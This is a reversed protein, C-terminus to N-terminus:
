RPNLYDAASIEHVRRGGCDTVYVNNSIDSMRIACLSQLIPLLQGNVPNPAGNPNVAKASKPYGELTKNRWNNWYYVENTVSSVALITEINEGEENPTSILDFDEISYLGIALENYNSEGEGSVTLLRDFREQGIVDDADCDGVNFTAPNCPSTEEAIPNENFIMIRAHLANQGGIPNLQSFRENSSVLMKGDETFFIRNPSRFYRKLLGDFDPHLTNKLGDQILINPNATLLDEFTTRTYFDPQGLVKTFRCLPSTWTESTCNFVDRNFYQRIKIVRNNGTDAVYLNGDKANVDTPENLSSNGLTELPYSPTTDMLGAKGIVWNPTCVRPTIIGTGNDTICGNTPLNNYVVIRNNGSDSIFLRNAIVSVKRPKTLCENQPLPNNECEEGADCIGDRNGGTAFINEYPGGCPYTTGPAAQGLVNMAVMPAGIYQLLCASKEVEDTFDECAMAGNRAYIVVRNNDTDAVYMTNGSYALAIGGKNDGPVVAGPNLSQLYNVNGNLPDLGLSWRKNEWFKLPSPLTFSSGPAKSKVDIRVGNSWDNENIKVFVWYSYDTDAAVDNSEVGEEDIINEDLYAVGQMASRLYLPAGSAEDAPCLSADNGEPAPCKINFSEPPQRRKYISITYDMTTYLPPVTWSLRIKNLVSTDARLNTVDLVKSKTLSITGFPIRPDYYYQKEEVEEDDTTNCSVVFLPLGMIILINLLKKFSNM